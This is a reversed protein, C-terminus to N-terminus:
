MKGISESHPRFQHYNSMGFAKKQIIKFSNDGTALLLSDLKNFNPWM